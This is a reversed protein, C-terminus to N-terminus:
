YHEVYFHKKYARIEKVEKENSGQIRCRNSCQPCELSYSYKGESYEEECRLLIIKDSWGIDDHFDQIVERLDFYFDRKPEEEDVDFTDLELIMSEENSEEIEEIKITQDIVMLANREIEATTELLVNNRSINFSCISSDMSTRRAPPSKPRSMPPPLFVRRKNKENKLIEIKRALEENKALYEKHKRELEDEKELKEVLEEDLRNIQKLLKLVKSKNFTAHQKNMAQRQNIDEIINKSIDTRDTVKSEVPVRRM